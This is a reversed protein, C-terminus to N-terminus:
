LPRRVLAGDALRSALEGVPDSYTTLRALQQEVHEPREQLKWFRLALRQVKGSKWGLRQAESHAAIIRVYESRTTM